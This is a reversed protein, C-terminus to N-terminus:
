RAALKSRSPFNRFESWGGSFRVQVVSSTHHQAICLNTANPPPDQSSHLVFLAEGDFYVHFCEGRNVSALYAAHSVMAHYDNHAHANADSLAM